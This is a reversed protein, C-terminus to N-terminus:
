YDGGADHGNGYWGGACMKTALDITVGPCGHTLCGCYRTASCMKMAQHVTVGPCGNLLCVCNNPNLPNLPDQTNYLDQQMNWYPYGNTFTVLMAFLLFKM